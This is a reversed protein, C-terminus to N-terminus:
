KVSSAAHQLVTRALDSHDPECWEVIITGGTQLKGNENRGIMEASVSIICKFRFELPAVPRFDDGLIQELNHFVSNVNDVECEKYGIGTFGESCISSSHLYETLTSNVEDDKRDFFESATYLSSDIPLSKPNIRLIDTPKPAYVPVGLENALEKRFKLVKSEEGHMIMVASPQVLDITRRIGISDAHSSFSMNVLKCRIQSADELLRGVLTNSFCFGPVVVVNREDGCWERFVDLSLGTSLNGPTAFLICPTTSEIVHWHHARNFPRINCMLDNGISSRESEVCWERFQEYVFNARSALGEAIYFPTDGLGFANWHGALIASVEQARGLAPVAVLVHGGNRLADSIAEMLSEEQEYRGGKRITNCYTAETVFLDPRTYAPVQAARLHRDASISYDGSYLVRHQGKLISFMVAGLAHGAYHATVSISPTEEVAVSRELHILRVKRLCNGIDRESFPCYQNRAHSTRVFDQLMLRTMELTPATMYVPVQVNLKETLLPLAAAHDIHFHSILICSLSSLNPVLSFDPFRSEDGFSPHAGCDFMVHTDTEDELSVVICSRGVDCGGGLIQARM